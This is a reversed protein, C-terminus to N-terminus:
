SWWLACGLLALPVIVGDPFWLPGASVLPQLIPSAERAAYIDTDRPLEAGGFYLRLKHAYLAVAKMPQERWFAIGKAFFFSSGTGPLGRRMPEEAMALWHEGPRMALTADYDANNGIYFNLGGNSSVLVVEQGRQWNGYTVPAIPLAIGAVFAGVLSARRLRTAVVAAFPLVVPAFVASVGLAIGAIAADRETRKEDAVLAAWMAVLSAAMVWTPPLLEYSEFVLVGHLAVVIATAFAIRKSFLRRAIVFAMACCAASVLAQVVRPALLGTGFFRFVIALAYVLGPPQYWPRAEVRGNAFDRGLDVYREEDGIPHDFLVDGRQSLVFALRLAFALLAIGGLAIREKRTLAEV